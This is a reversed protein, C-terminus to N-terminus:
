SLVAAWFGVTLVATGIIVAWGSRQATELEFGMGADWFLHRVGNMLHYFYAASIGVLLLHGPWSILLESFRDYGQAGTGLAILWAVLVIAGFALFVGSARHLISLTSTIRWAYASLHPSLPRNAEPM